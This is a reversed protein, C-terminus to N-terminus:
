IPNEDRNLAFVRDCSPNTVLGSDSWRVICRRSNFRDPGIIVGRDGDPRFEIEDGVFLNWAGIQEPPPAKPEALANQSARASQWVIREIMADNLTGARYADVMSTILRDREDCHPCSAKPEAGRRSQLEKLCAVVETRFHVGDPVSEYCRILEQLDIDSVTKTM